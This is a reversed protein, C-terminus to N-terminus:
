YEDHREIERINEIAERVPLGAKVMRQIATKRKIHNQTWDFLIYDIDRQRPGTM